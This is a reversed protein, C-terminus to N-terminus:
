GKPWDFKAFGPIRATIIQDGARITEGEDMADRIRDIRMLALGIKGSSSGMTGAPKRGATIETGSAPLESDAEVIMIRTRVNGRHQMRSVVEQGVYCGKAFDVGGFQDMLVEHPFVSGYSFDLGGQPIGKAIRHTHYHNEDLEPLEPARRCYIRFGMSALRPDTTKIGDVAGPDGDWVAHVTMPPDAPEISVKARLKYFDIRRAFDTAMSADIDALYGEETRILFFDFLIKGQPSLLAGFTAQGAELSDVECTVIGQLLKAADDGSIRLLSREALNVNKCASM